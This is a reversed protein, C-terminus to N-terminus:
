SRKSFRSLLPGLDLGDREACARLHARVQDKAAVVPELRTEGRPALIETLRVRVRDKRLQKVHFADNRIDVFDRLWQRWSPDGHLRWVLNLRLRTAIEATNKLIPPVSGLTIKGGRRDDFLADWAESAMEARAVQVFPEVVGECIETEVARAVGSFAASLDFGPTNQHQGYVVWSTALFAQSKEELREWTAGLLGALDRRAEAIEPAFITEPLDAFCRVKGRLRAPDFLEEVPPGEVPIPYDHKFAAYPDYGSVGSALDGSELFYRLTEVQNFALARIDRVLFWLAPHLGERRYYAPVFANEAPALEDGFVVREVRLAHLTQYNTAYLVLDRGQRRAEDAVEVVKPFRERAEAEGFPQSRKYLRAWWVRRDQPQRRLIDAHVQITEPQYYPNWVTLLQKQRAMGRRYGITAEGEM